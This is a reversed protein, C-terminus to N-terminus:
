LTIRLQLAVINDIFNDTEIDGSSRTYYDGLSVTAVRTLRYEAIASTGYVKRREHQPSFKDREYSGNVQYKMRVHPTYALGVTGGLANNTQDIEVYDDRTHYIEGSVSLQKGWRVRLQQTSSKVIGQNVSFGFLQSARLRVEGSESLHYTAALDYEPADSSSGGSFKIWRYGTAADLEIKQGLKYLASLSVATENDDPEPATPRDALYEAKLSTNLRPSIRHELTLFGKYQQRNIGAGSRYWINTYAFGATAATAPDIQYKLYPTANLNNADTRNVSLNSSTSPGRPNIVENTYNDTVDFYLFNEVVTLKSSLSGYNSYTGDEQKAYYWWQFTDDLTLDWARTKYLLTLSPNVRSIFDGVKGNRTLFINDDYEEGLTISPKASFEACPAM